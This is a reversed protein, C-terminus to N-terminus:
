KEYFFEMNAIYPNNEMVLKKLQCFTLNKDNQTKYALILMIEKIFISINTNIILNNYNNNRYGELFLEVGLNFEKRHALFNEIKVNLLDAQFTIPQMIIKKAYNQYSDLLFLKPTNIILKGDLPMELWNSMLSLLISYLYCDLKLYNIVDISRYNLYCNLKGSEDVLFQANMTCDQGIYTPYNMFLNIIAHTSFKSKKLENYANYIQNGYLEFIRKGIHSPFFGYDDANLKFKSSFIEVFQTDSRGSLAFVMESLAEIMQNNDFFLGINFPNSIVIQVNNIEKCPLTNENAYIYSKNGNLLLEPILRTNIEHGNKLEITSM